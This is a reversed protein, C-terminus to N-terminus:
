AMARGIAADQDDQSARWRRVLASVADPLRGLGHAGLPAMAREARAHLLLEIERALATAPQVWRRDLHLWVLAQATVILLLAPALLWADPGALWLAAALLAATALALSAFLLWLRARPSMRGGTGTM